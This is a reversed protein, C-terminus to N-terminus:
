TSAVDRDAFTEEDRVTFELLKKTDRIYIEFTQNWEPNQGANDHTTTQVKEKGNKIVVYPDMKGTLEVDRELRASIVTIKLVGNLADEGFNVYNKKGYTAIQSNVFQRDQGSPKGWDSTEPLQEFVIEELMEKIEEM